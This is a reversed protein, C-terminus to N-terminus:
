CLQSPIKCIHNLNWLQSEIPLNDLHAQGSGRVGKFHHMEEMQSCFPITPIHEAPRSSIWRRAMSHALPGGPFTSCAAELFVTWGQSEVHFHTDNAILTNPLGQRPHSLQGPAEAHSASCLGAISPRSKQGMPVIPNDVPTRLAVLKHYNTVCCSDPM